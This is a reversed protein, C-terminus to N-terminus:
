ACKGSICARPKNLADRCCDKDVVCPDGVNQNCCYKNAAGSGNTACKLGFCCQSADTCPQTLGDQVLCGNAPLCLHEFTDCRGSCCDMDASCSSRDAGWPCVFLDPAALDTSPPGLLDESAPPPDLDPSEVAPGDHGADVRSGSSAGCGCLALILLYRM